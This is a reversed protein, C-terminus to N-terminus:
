TRHQLTASFPQRTLTANANSWRVIQRKWSAVIFISWVNGSAKISPSSILSNPATADRTAGSKSKAEHEKCLELLNCSRLPLTFPLKSHLYTCQSRNVCCVNCWEEFSSCGIILLIGLQLIIWHSYESLPAPAHTM